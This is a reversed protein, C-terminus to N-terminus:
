EAALSADDTRSIGALAKGQLAAIEEAVDFVVQDTTAPKVNGFRLTKFVPVGSGSLGNDLKIGIRSEQPTKVVAM